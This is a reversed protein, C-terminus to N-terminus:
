QMKLDNECVLDNKSIEYSKEEQQFNHRYYRPIYYFEVINM